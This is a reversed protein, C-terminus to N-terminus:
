QPLIINNLTKNTQRTTKDKAAISSALTLASAAAPM